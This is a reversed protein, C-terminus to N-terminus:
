RMCKCVDATPLFYYQNSFIIHRLLPFNIFISHNEGGGIDIDISSLSEPVVIDLLEHVIHIFALCIGAFFDDISVDKVDAAAIDGVNFHAFDNIIIGFFARAMTEMM